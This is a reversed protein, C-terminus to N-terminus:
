IIQKGITVPLPLLVEPKPVDSKEGAWYSFALKFNLSPSFGQYLEKANFCLGGRIFNADFTQFVDETEIEFVRYNTNTLESWMKIDNLNELAFLSEYRSPKSPFFLRRILEFAYEAFYISNINNSNYIEEILAKTRYFFYANDNLYHAGHMSVGNPFLKEVLFIGDSNNPIFNKQTSIIQGEFLTNNRDIHYYKM